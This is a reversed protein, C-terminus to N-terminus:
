RSFCHPKGLKDVKKGAKKVPYTFLSLLPQEM